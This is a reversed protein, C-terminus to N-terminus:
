QVRLKPELFQSKIKSWDNLLSEAKIDRRNKRLVEIMSIFGKEVEEALRKRFQDTHALRWWTEPIGIEVEIWDRKRKAKQAGYINWMATYRHFEGDVRLVFAFERIDGSYDGTWQNFRDRLEQMQDRSAEGTQGGIQAGLSFSNM